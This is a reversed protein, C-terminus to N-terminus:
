GGSLFYFLIKLYGPNFHTELTQTDAESPRKFWFTQRWLFSLIPPKVILFLAFVITYAATIFWFWNDHCKSEERCQTTFLDESYGRACTGCLEGTRHGYCGNYDLIGPSNLPHCYELPCPVFTLTPPRKTPVYGWFNPKAKILNDLCTAGYPCPQVHRNPSISDQLTDENWLTHGSLVITASFKCVPELRCVLKQSTIM